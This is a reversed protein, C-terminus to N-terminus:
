LVIYEDSSDIHRVKNMRYWSPFIKFHDQTELAAQIRQNDPHVNARIYQSLLEYARTLCKIQAPFSLFVPNAQFPRQQRAFGQELRVIFEDNATKKDPGGSQCPLLEQYEKVASQFKLPLKCRFSAHTAAPSSPHQNDLESYKEDPTMIAAEEALRIGRAQQLIGSLSKELELEEKKRLVNEDMEKQLKQSSVKQQNQFWLINKKLDMCKSRMIENRYFLDMYIMSQDYLVKTLSDSYQEAKSTGMM